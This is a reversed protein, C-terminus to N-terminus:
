PGGVTGAVAGLGPPLGGLQRFLGLTDEAYRWEVIRGDVLRVLDIGRVQVRRGTGPMGYFPGEHTGTLVFQAAVWDGEAVLLEVEERGDPFGERWVEVLRKFGERGAPWDPPFADHKLDESILEDAAASNGRTWFEEYFRRVVAKNREVESV